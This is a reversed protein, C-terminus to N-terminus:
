YVIMYVDGTKEARRSVEVTCAHTEAHRVFYAPDQSYPSLLDDPDFNLSLTSEKGDAIYASIAANLDIVDLAFRILRQLKKESYRRKIFDKQLATIADFVCIVKENHMINKERLFEAFDEFFDAPKQNLPKLLSLFWPVARGKTYFLGCAFALNKAKQIDNKSFGPSSQVHYPPQPLFDLQFDKAKDFLSTGPLVALQFIEVHNPYLELAFDLSKKFGDFTDGPLGYILDFGFVAGVDNLFGMNRIFEKKNFSRQVNKLVKESSSQLGIQLSCPIQAFAQALNRDIFEPRCEFHFFVNPAKKEIYRLIETARKKDVNYTPDLVFIQKVGAHVFFDLEAFLREKPFYRVNKEGKSEYCYSCAYPCGRALEWLAGSYQSPNLTGDLYPSALTKVDCAKAYLIPNKPLNKQALIDAILDSVCDEGEGAILYDFPNDSECFSHADASVEPGGAIFISQPFQKKLIKAAWVLSARNWVYVSFCIISPNKESLKKAISEGIKKDSLGQLNKDEPSFGCVAVDAQLADNHSLKQKIASAICASGLPLAQPSTEVLLTTCIIVSRKKEMCFTYCLIAFLDQM